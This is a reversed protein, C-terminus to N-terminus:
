SKHCRGIKKYVLLLACLHFKIINTLVHIKVPANKYENLRLEKVLEIKTLKRAEQTVYGTSNFFFSTEMSDTKQFNADHKSPRM